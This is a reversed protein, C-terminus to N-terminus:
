LARLHFSKPRTLMEYGVKSLTAGRGTEKVGTWALAPDLYDCRNMYVTGTEVEAGIREAADMDKTWISATLGYPSDNMLRIAEEDSAVKMIGVVPGFTEEMMVKMSHDVNVLVQPAVYTSGGSDKAFNRVDILPRAGKYAAEAVHDRVTQALRRQAMPGLTTNPNLPDGLVYQNTLDVFGDVFKDYIDAQVYIREIGCCCQGSNFYSGDVLNEVAHAIDVDSRVYAPDKGGLELGVGAFTGAAAQEIARGSAVSGTFCVQDIQGSSILKLTDEHSLVLNQFLGKPFGARDMAMQFRDGVLITQSAHKLLVANGAMLAPIISNVATLYPYNWPAITLVIGLPDRRVYRRFGEKAAPQIPSLASEAISVMYRSREEFGGMEAGGFKVPRGMQWSLEPGIEAKMALMADVATLCLKAREALPVQAWAAQAKRAAAVATAIEDGSATRKRAVERGDVPSICVIDTM